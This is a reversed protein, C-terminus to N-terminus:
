PIQWISNSKRKRTLVVLIFLLFLVIHVYKVYYIHKMNTLNIYFNTLITLSVRYIDFKLWVKWCHLLFVFCVCRKNRNITPNSSSQAIGHLPNGSTTIPKTWCGTADPLGRGDRNSGIDNCWGHPAVLRVIRRNREHTM